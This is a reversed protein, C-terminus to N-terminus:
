VPPNLSVGLVQEAWGAAALLKAEQFPKAAMQTGLPLGNSALASPITISPFGTFSWPSQFRTDGTQTLDRPAPSKAM